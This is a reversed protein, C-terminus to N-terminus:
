TKNDTFYLIDNILNIGTIINNKPTPTTPTGTTNAEVQELGDNFNLIRPSTFKLM